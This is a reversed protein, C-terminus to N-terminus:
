QQSLCAHAAQYQDATYSGGAINLTPVKSTKSSSLTMIAVFHAM